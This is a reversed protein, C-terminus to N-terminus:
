AEGEQERVSQIVRAVTAIRPCQGPEPDIAILEHESGTSVLYDLITLFQTPTQIEIPMADTLNAREIFREALDRDTFVAVFTRGGSTMGKAFIIGRADPNDISKRGAVYWLPNAIIFKNPDFDLEEM